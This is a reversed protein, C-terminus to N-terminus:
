LEKEPLFKKLSLLLQTFAHAANDIEKIRHSINGSLNNILLDIIEKISILDKLWVYAVIAEVTNALDHSDARNKAFSKMNASKLAISLISKNVKEGTRIIRKSSNNQSLYVSKAVSYSFNVIGDGLKALGKDTGIAKQTYPLNQILFEFAM